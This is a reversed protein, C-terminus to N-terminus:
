ARKNQRKAKWKKLAENAASKNNDFQASYQAHILDRVTAAMSRGLHVSLMGLKDMTEEGFRFSMSPTSPKNGDAAEKELKTKKIKKM